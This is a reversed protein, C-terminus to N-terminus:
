DGTLFPRLQALAMSLPLGQQSLVLDAARRGVRRATEPADLWAAWVQALDGASAIRQWAGAQDFLDALVQFNEVNPGVAIPVAFRAPEIPNHGRGLRSLSYGLFAASALRYLPALEGFSDLLIVAPRGSEPLRTRRVYEVGRSRLLKTALKLDRRPALILLARGGGGLREFAELVLPDEDPHTSGAILIPRGAALERITAELEPLLDTAVDFKMEGTVTMRDRSIGMPVLLEREEESRVCLMQIGSLLPLYPDIDIWGQTFGGNLLATPLDRQMLLLCLVLSLDTAEILILRRPSRRRLFRRLVFEFPWPVASLQVRESLGKEEVLQLGLPLSFSTIVFQLDTPLALVLTIAIKMEAPGIAHIWVDSRQAGHRSFGWKDLFIRWQRRGGILVRAPHLLLTFLAIQIRTKRLGPRLRALHNELTLTALSEVAMAAESAGM